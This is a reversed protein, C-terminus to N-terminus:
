RVAICSRAVEESTSSDVYSCTLHLRQVMAVPARTVAMVDIWTTGVGAVRVTQTANPALEFDVFQANGPSYIGVGRVRIPYTANLNTFKIGIPPNGSRVELGTADDLLIRTEANRGEVTTSVRGGAREFADPAVGRLLDADLGSGAGDVLELQALLKQAKRLARKGPLAARGAAYAVVVLLVSVM